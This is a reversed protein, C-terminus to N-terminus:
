GCCGSVNGLVAFAHAKEWGQQLMQLHALIHGLLGSSNVKVAVLNHVQERLADLQSESGADSGSDGHSYSHSSSSSGSHTDSSSDATSSSSSRRGPPEFDDIVSLV